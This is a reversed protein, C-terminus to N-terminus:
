AAKYKRRNEILKDVSVGYLPAQENFFQNYKKYFTDTRNPVIHIHAHEVNEGRLLMYVKPNGTVRQYRKVIKQVFGMMRGLADTPMDWISKYHAKPAILTHGESFPKNDLFAIFERNDEIILSTTVQKAIDCFPCGNGQMYSKVIKYELNDFKGSIL